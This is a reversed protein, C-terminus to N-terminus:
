AGSGNSRFATRVILEELDERRDIALGIELWYLKLPAIIARFDAGLNVADKATTLLTDAGRDISHRALRRLEAPKYRHHDEWTHCELPEISCQRLSRWFSEPNGLGCFAVARAPQFDGPACRSGDAGAWERLETTCHFIPAAPNYHRLVSEIAAVNPVENARSIVFATARRLGELPERLRGLPLLHGGGFPRLADILVLDFDRHLRLHQFGDDLFLIRPQAIKLLQVGTSYRDSGIGIPAHTARFCLSAEDGTSQVPLEVDGSTLLVTDRTHRGHGRTLMGPNNPKLDRLLEITMPTKGTGGATINGISIVPVPLHRTRKRKRLRDWASGARWAQAFLWLTGYAPQACRETPYHSGYSEMVADAIRAAAGRQQEAAAQARVGLSQDACAALVAAPLDNGSSITMLADHRAFHDAIDRFNEMHPGVIVPKGFIAPELINHGGRSALTGGMFVVDAEAFLASLEGISDLLLIEAYPDIIGSRQTWRLGSDSLKKAADAFREPKRPALILRWDPLLKQAAIVIDEEAILDDASTSAAIWLPRGARNRLFPLAPSDPGIASPTFDYKLNGTAAVTTAPAGAQLYRRSMEDSQTLIGDCLALVSSFLTAFQQYRPLARDSIRGNVLLLGAGIRKTERFLNPWIETELVIVVTPRIRRLVRRVAWVYDLPAYFVGAVSLRKLATEHGALTSTSVFVLTAPSRKKLEEILPVAALVEGVSVAHLWISASVTQQWSPPLDGCRQRLTAFYAPARLGRLLFYFLLVPSVLTQM